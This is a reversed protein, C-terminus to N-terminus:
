TAYRFGSLQMDTKNSVDEALEEAQSALSPPGFKRDRRKNEWLYYVLLCALFFVGLCFGALTATIGTQYRPAEHTYFFQPGIINGVCYASFIMASVVSKKTFGGVNSTILSLSIPINAAFPSCLWIGVLRGWRNHSPLAYVLAMGLVSVVVAAIMLFLRSNKFYTAGLCLLGLAILQTAGSPMQVLLTTLPDFGFGAVILSNFSTVGGNPINVVLTYLALILAQPDRFIEWVQEWKFNGEDMVGTKNELTRSVAIIREEPTLFKAKTPSDPLLVLLVLGYATTAAGLILFLLRWTALHSGTITGIGYAIVGSFINAVGNGAFWIGM